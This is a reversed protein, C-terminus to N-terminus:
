LDGRRWIYYFYNELMTGLSGAEVEAEFGASIIKDVDERTKFKEREEADDGIMFNADFCRLCGQKYEDLTM